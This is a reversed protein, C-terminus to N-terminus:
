VEAKRGIQSISGQYVLKDAELLMTNNVHMHASGTGEIRARGGEWRAGDGVDEMFYVTIDSEGSVALRRCDLATHYTYYEQSRLPLSM